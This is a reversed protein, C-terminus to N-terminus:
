IHTSGGSMEGARVETGQLTRATVGDVQVELRHAGEHVAGLRLQVDSLVPLTGDLPLLVADVAGAAVGSPGMGGVPGDRATSM